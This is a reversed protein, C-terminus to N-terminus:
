ETRAFSVTTSKLQKAGKALWSSWDGWLNKWDYRAPLLSGTMNKKADGALRAKLAFDVPNMVPRFGDYPGELRWAWPEVLFEKPIFEGGGYNPAVVPVGCALAEAASYGFGEGLGIALVCDCASLSWAMQEDTFEATTAIVKSAVDFDTFLAPLSWHRELVDTHCWVMVNRWKAVNAVTQLALGWDKRIQNTAVIGIMLCDDPVSFFKGKPTRAGIREGFGHRAASRNRPYFVSTDIGHPLWAIDTPCHPVGDFTRKVIDEAWKSYCLVRDYSAITHALIASLRDHPGTADIPFYGWREFPANVLFKRLQPDACTEPRSFWLLRSSDWVSLLIGREDGALDKWADPLNFCVWDKMDLTYQPFGLSRNFPGGYGITGVRFVDSLESHIRMALDKTIRGLGSGCTPSDSLILLPTPM